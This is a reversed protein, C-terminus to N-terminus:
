GQLLKILNQILVHLWFITETINLACVYKMLHNEYHLFFLLRISIGLSPSPIHAGDIISLKRKRRRKKGWWRIMLSCVSFVCFFCPWGSVRSLLGSVESTRRVVCVCATTVCVLGCGPCLGRTEGTIKLCRLLVNRRNIKFVDGFFSWKWAWKSYLREGPYCMADGLWAKLEIKHM